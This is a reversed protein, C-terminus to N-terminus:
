EGQRATEENRPHLWNDLLIAAMLVAGRAMDAVLNNVNMITLGNLMTGILLTGAVVSFVSGRGGVLSIGGLVIILIVNFIMTSNIIDSDVAMLTTLHLIGAIFAVFAAISYEIVTLPRVPIGSLRAAEPNDGHAYVFRGLVTRTLTLHIVIAVVVFIIVSVPIDLLRTRGLEIMATADKPLYAISQGSQVLGRLLGYAMINTALTAFLAPIEIFAIILGNVIGILLSASLGFLLAIPLPYGAQLSVTTVVAGAAMAAIQSLDIGRGIVVIAAGLSLIGLQAVGNLLIVINGYTAFGPLTIAFFAFMVATVGLIVQEQSIAPWSFRGPKAADSAQTSM